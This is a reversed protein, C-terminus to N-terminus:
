VVARSFRVAVIQSKARHDNTIMWWKRMGQADQLPAQLGVLLASFLASIPLRM